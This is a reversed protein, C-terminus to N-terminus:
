QLHHRSWNFSCFFVKVRTCLEVNRAIRLVNRLDVTLIFIFIILLYICTGTVKNCVNKLELDVAREADLSALIVRGVWRDLGQVRAINVSGSGCSCLEPLSFSLFIIAHKKRRM